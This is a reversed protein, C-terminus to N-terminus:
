NSWLLVYILRVSEFGAPSPPPTHAVHKFSGPIPLSIDQPANSSPSAPQSASSKPTDSSKFIKSLFGKKSKAPKTVSNSTSSPLSSPSQQPSSGHKKLKETVKDVLDQVRTQMTVLSSSEHTSNYFLSAACHLLFLPLLLLLLLSEQATHHMCPWGWNKCLLSVYSGEKYRGRKRSWFSIFM